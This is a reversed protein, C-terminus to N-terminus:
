KSIFILTGHKDYIGPKTEGCIYHKVDTESEINPQNLKVIGTTRPNGLNDVYVHEFYICRTKQDFFFEMCGGFKFRWECILKM